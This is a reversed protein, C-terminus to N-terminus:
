CQKWYCWSPIQNRCAARHERKYHQRVSIDHGLCKVHYWVWDCVLGLEVRYTQTGLSSCSTGDKIVKTHRQGPDFGHGGRGWLPCVVLQAIPALSSLKPIIKLVIIRLNYDLIWRIKIKNKIQTKRGMLIIESMKLWTLWLTPRFCSTWSFFWGVVRLRFKALTVNGSSSDLGCLHSSPRNLTSFILMRLWEVVPAAEM